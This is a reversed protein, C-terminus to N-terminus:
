NALDGIWLSICIMLSLGLSVKSVVEKTAWLVGDFLLDAPFYSRSFHFHDVFVCATYDRNPSSKRVIAAEMKM